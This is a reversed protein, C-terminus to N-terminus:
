AWCSSSVLPIYAAATFFSGPAYVLIHPCLVLIPARHIVTQRFVPSWFCRKRCLRAGIHLKILESWRGSLGVTFGFRLASPSLASARSGTFRRLAEAKVINPVAALQKGLDSM